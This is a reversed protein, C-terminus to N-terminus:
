PLLIEGALVTVAKGGVLVRKDSVKVYIQSPSEMWYGQYAYFSLEDNEKLGKNYLCAGLAGNSTGTAAEENIGCGPAFNRCWVDKEDLTFAHVGIVDLEHSLSALKGMNPSIDKLAEKSKVPLMIDKLGTSWVEPGKMLDIGILDKDIGMIFAFHDLDINVDVCVPDAQTMVVKDDIFEIDLLGAKTKQVLKDKKIMGLEKLLSFTAITAHGCLDVEETPTFFRVEFDYDSSGPFVFATESLQMERAIILMQNETLGEANVMVGAANGGFAQDTFADVQYIKRKM